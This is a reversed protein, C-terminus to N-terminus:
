WLFRLLRKTRRRYAQYGPLDRALLREEAMIRRGYARGFLTSVVAVVPLSGSTLGFGAWAVLTGLYGPHRVLRYPGAEM